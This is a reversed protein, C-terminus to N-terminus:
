TVQIKRNKYGEYDTLNRQYEREMLTSSIM